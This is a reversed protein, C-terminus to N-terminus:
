SSKSEEQEMDIVLPEDEDDDSAQKKPKDVAVTDSSEAVAPLAKEAKAPKNDKAPPSKVEDNISDVLGSTSKKFERLGKGLSRGLEPLKSPGFLILALFLILFIEPPGIGGIFLLM